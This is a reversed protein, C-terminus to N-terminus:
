RFIKKQAVLGGGVALVIVTVISEEPGDLGGSLWVPATEVAKLDVILPHLGLEIGTTALGFGNIFFWNWAAAGWISKQRKQYM